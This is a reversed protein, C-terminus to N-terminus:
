KRLTKAANECVANCVATTVMATTTTVRTIMAGTDVMAKITTAMTEMIEMDKIGTTETGKTGIKILGQFPSGSVTLIGCKM